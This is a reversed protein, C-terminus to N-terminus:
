LSGTYGAYLPDLSDLPDLLHGIDVIAELLILLLVV